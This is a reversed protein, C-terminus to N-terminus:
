CKALFFCTKIIDLITYVFKASSNFEEWAENILISPRQLLQKELFIREPSDIYLLNFIRFFKGTIINFKELFSTRGLYKLSNYDINESPLFLPQLTNKKNM